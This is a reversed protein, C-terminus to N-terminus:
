DKCTIEIRENVWNPEGTKSYKIPYGKDDYAPLAIYEVPKDKRLLDLIEAMEDKTGEIIIKM